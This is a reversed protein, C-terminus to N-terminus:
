PLPLQNEGNMLNVEKILSELPIFGESLIKTKNQKLKTSHLKKGKLSFKKGWVSPNIGYYRRKRSRIGHISEGHKDTVLILKQDVLTQIAKTVSKKSIGTKEEFCRYSIWDREKRTGSTNVWGITQRIIILLVKFETGSLDKLYSDFVINPVMTTQEYKM